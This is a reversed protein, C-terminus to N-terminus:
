KSNENNVRMCYERLRKDNSDPSFLEQIYLDEMKNFDTISVRNLHFFGEICTPREKKHLYEVKKTLKSVLKM